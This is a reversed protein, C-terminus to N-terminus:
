DFSDTVDEIGFVAHDIILDILKRKLLLRGKVGCVYVCTGFQMHTCINDHLAM